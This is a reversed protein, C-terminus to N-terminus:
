RAYVRVWDVLMEQPFATGSDPNGPWGGGVAVNLIIFFPHDFAWGGAGAPLDRPTRTEYLVGDVYWRIVNSEWEVGFVHFGDAFPDRPSRYSAGLGGAGSYGPGHITGYVLMPERGINEMIDIEGCAPWGLSSCNAGLLWFAPWIGQGRPIRIRAEFKGHTQAFLGETRLRASTYPREIGDRGRYREALARIVLMGGRVVSNERRDTYTELEDNGWGNGGLDYVWRSPDPASHDAAEFEDSWTLHWGPPAPSPTAQSAGGAGAALALEAVLTAAALGFTPRATSFRSQRLVGGRRSQTLM